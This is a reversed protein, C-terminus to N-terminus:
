SVAAAPVFVTVGIDRKRFEEELRARQDDAFLSVNLNLMGDEISRMPRPPKRTTIFQVSKFSAYPFVPTMLLGTGTLALGEDRFVCRPMFIGILIIPLCLIMIVIFIVAIFYDHQLWQFVGLAGFILWFRSLMKLSRRWDAYIPVGPRSPNPSRLAHEGNVFHRRVYILYGIFVILGVFMLIDDLLMFKQFAPTIQAFFDRYKDFESGLFVSMDGPPYYSSVAWAMGVLLAAFWGWPRRTYFAWAVLACGAAFALFTAQQMLTSLHIGALILSPHIVDALYSYSLCIFLVVGLFVSLPISDITYRAQDSTELARRTGQNACFAAFCAALLALAAVVCIIFDVYIGFRSGFNVPNDNVTVNISDMVSRMFGLSIAISTFKLSLLTGVAFGIPRLPRQLRRCLIGHWFLFFSALYVTWVIHLAKLATPATLSTWFPVGVPFAHKQAFQGYIGGAM